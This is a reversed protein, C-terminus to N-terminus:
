SQSESMGGKFPLEEEKIAKTIFLFPTDSLSIEKHKKLLRGKYDSIIQIVPRMLNNKDISIVKGIEGNNLQVYSNLPFISFEKIFAKIVKPSLFKDRLKIVEQLANYFTLRKRWPRNHSWAIFIDAAGIIRAFEHIEEGKLGQPYGKGEEREHEQYVIDAIWEYKKGQSKILQYSMAPHKKIESFEKNNLSDPKEIISRPVKVMGVDHLMGVQALKLLDAKKYNMGKGIKVAIISVDLMHKALDYGDTPKFAELLLANNKELDSVIAEAYFAVKSLDASDKAEFSEIIEVIYHYAKQYIEQAEAREELPQKEIIKSFGEETLEELKADEKSTLTKKDKLYEAKEEDYVEKTEPKSLDISKELIEKYENIISSILGVDIDKRSKQAAAIMSLRCLQNVISLDDRSYESIFEIAQPTFIKQKQGCINLRHNIYNEINNLTFSELRFIIGVKAILSSSTELIDALAVRGSLIINSLLERKQWLEVISDFEQFVAQEEILHANDLVLVIPLNDVQYSRKLNNIISISSDLKQEKIREQLKSSLESLLAAKDFGNYCNIIIFNREENLEDFLMSILHSKGSGKNGLLILSEKGEILAFLMLNYVKSLSKTFFILDRDFTNLFPKKLLNWYKQYM